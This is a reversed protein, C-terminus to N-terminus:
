YYYYYYYLLSARAGTLAIFGGVPVRCTGTVFQLLRSRQEHDLERVVRWFWAIQPAAGPGVPVCKKYMTHRQWDDVDIEQMGCLLVELEREDM